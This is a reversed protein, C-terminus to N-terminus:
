VANIFFYLAGLVLIVLLAIVLVREINMRDVM